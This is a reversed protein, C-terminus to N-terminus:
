ENIVIKYSDNAHISDPFFWPTEQFPITDPYVLSRNNFLFDVQTFSSKPLLKFDDFVMYAGCNKNQYKVTRQYSFALTDVQGPTYFYYTVSDRNMDFPITNLSTLSESAGDAEIQLTGDLEATYLPGNNDFNQYDLLIFTPEIQTECKNGSCSMLLFLVPVFFCFPSFRM